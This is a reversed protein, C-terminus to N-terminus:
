SWKRTTPDYTHSPPPTTNGSSENNGGSNNPSSSAGAGASGQSNDGATASTTSIGKSSTDLNSNSIEVQKIEKNIKPQFSIITHPYKRYKLTLKPTELKGMKVYYFTDGVLRATFPYVEDGALRTIFEIDTQKSQTITEQMAFTYDPDTVCKFGYEACKRKVVDASTCNTFTEDKKKRNMLHTNDMCLITLVPVGDSGFNIDIASIYGNFDVRYESVDWGMMIRIKNDEVFINDEIFLFDPDAIVFTASDAGDVTEKIDCSRICQKKEIGLMTGSVWINYRLFLVDSDDSVKGGARIQEASYTSM